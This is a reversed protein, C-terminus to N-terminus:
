ARADARISDEPTLYQTTLRLTVPTNVQARGTSSSADRAIGAHAPFKRSVVRSEFGSGCTQIVRDSCVVCDHVKEQLSPKPQIFRESVGQDVSISSLSLCSPSLNM